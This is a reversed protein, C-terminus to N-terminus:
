SHAYPIDAFEPFAKSITDTHLRGDVTISPSIGSLFRVLDPDLYPTHLKNCHRKLLAFPSCGIDRRRRNWFYFSSMPDAADLFKRFEDSVKELARARTFLSPDRMVPVDHEPGVIDEVLEDIRGERLLTLRRENVLIGATFVDAAGIGDFLVPTDAIGALLVEAM